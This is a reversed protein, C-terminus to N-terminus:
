FNRTEVKPNFSPLGVTHQLTKLFGENVLKKLKDDIEIKDNIRVIVEEILNIV